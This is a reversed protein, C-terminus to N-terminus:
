MRPRYLDVPLVNRGGSLDHLLGADQLVSIVSFARERPGGEAEWEALDAALYGAAADPDLGGLHTNDYVLLQYEDAAKFRPLSETKRRIHDVVVASWEREADEGVWGRGTLKGGPPM